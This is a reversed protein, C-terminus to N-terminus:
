LGRGRRERFFAQLLEASEAALVGGTVKCRHNLRPDTAIAGLSDVYGAKPDPCGYAIREIRANVCAGACMACPEMTAYLVCGDLRWTGIRRAARRIAQIEAHAVPDHKTERQNCGAALIRDDRVVIAGVPVEGQRGARRALRLALRMATEDDM